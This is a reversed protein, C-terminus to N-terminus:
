WTGGDWEDNDSYSKGASVEGQKDDWLGVHDSKMVAYNMPCSVM